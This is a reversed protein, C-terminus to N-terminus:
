DFNMRLVGKIANVYKKRNVAVAADKKKRSLGMRFPCGDLIINFLCNSAVPAVTFDYKTVRM